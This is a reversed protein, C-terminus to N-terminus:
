GTATAASLFPKQLLVFQLLLVAATNNVIHVIIPTWLSKSKEFLWANAVGIVFSSAVVAASDAHGLAFLAGSSLAAPWLAIRSRMFTLVGGRFLLEEAIPALVGVGILNMLATLANFSTGGLLLDSRRQVSAMGGEFLRAAIVALIVRLPLLVFAIGLAILIWTWDIHIPWLGVSRPDFTKRKANVLLAGGGIVSVNCVLATLLRIHGDQIRLSSVAISVVFFVVFVLVYLVLDLWPRHTVILNTNQDLPQM